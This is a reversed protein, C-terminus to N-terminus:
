SSWFRKWFWSIFLNLWCLPCILQCFWCIESSWTLSTVSDVSVVRFFCSLHWRNNIILVVVLLWQVPQTPNQLFLYLGSGRDTILPLFVPSTSLLDLHLWSEFSVLLGCGLRHDTLHSYKCSSPLTGSKAKLEVTKNLLQRYNRSVMTFAAAATGVSKTTFAAWLNLSFMM